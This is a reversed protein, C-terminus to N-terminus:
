HRYAYDKTLCLSTVTVDDPGSFNKDLPM